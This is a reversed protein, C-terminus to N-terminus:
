NSEDSENTRENTRECERERNRNNETTKQRTHTIKWLNSLTRRFLIKRDSMLSWCHHLYDIDAYSWGNQSRPSIFGGKKWCPVSKLFHSLRKSRSRFVFILLYDIEKIYDVIYEKERIWKMKKGINNIHHFPYTPDFQSHISGDLWELNDTPEHSDWQARAHKEKPYKRYCQFEKWYWLYRESEWGSM